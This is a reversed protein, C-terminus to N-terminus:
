IDYVAAVWAISVVVLAVHGRDVEGGARLIDKVCGAAILGDVQFMQAVAHWRGTGRRPVCDPRAGTDDVVRSRVADDHSCSVPRVVAVVIPVVPAFGDHREM